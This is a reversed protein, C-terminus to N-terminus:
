LNSVWSVRLDRAYPGHVYGATVDLATGLRIGLGITWHWRNRDPPWVHAMLDRDPTEPPGSWTPRLAPRYWLGAQPTVQLRGRRVDYAISLRGDWRATYALREGPPSTYLYLDPSDNLGGGKWRWAEVAIAWRGQIVHLGFAFGDPFAVPLPLTVSEPPTERRVATVRVPTSFRPLWHYAFGLVVHPYVAWQAGVVWGWATDQADQTVDWTLDGAGRAGTRARTTVSLADRAVGGGIVFDEQLRLAVALGWRSWRTRWEVQEFWIRRGDTWPTEPRTWAWAVDLFRQYYLTLGADRGGIRLGWASLGWTVDRTFQEDLRPVGYSVHYQLELRTGPLSLITAPNTVAGSPAVSFAVSTWRGGLGGDYGLLPLRAVTAWPPADTTAGATGPVLGLLGLIWPLASPRM